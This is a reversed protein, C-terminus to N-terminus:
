IEDKRRVVTRVACPVVTSALVQHHDCSKRSGGSYNQYSIIWSEDIAIVRITAMATPGGDTKEWTETCRKRLLM